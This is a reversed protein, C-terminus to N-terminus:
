DNKLFIQKLLPSGPQAAPSQAPAKEIHHPVPLAPWTHKDVEDTLAKSWAAVWLSGVVTAFFMPFMVRHYFENFM